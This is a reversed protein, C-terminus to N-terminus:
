ESRLGRLSSDRESQRATVGREKTAGAGAGDSAPLRQFFRAKDFDRAVAVDFFGVMMEDSTQEGWRVAVDADPNHPNGRSNDFWAVAQLKTGAKLERPTAL